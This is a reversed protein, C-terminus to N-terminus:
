ETALIQEIRGADIKRRRGWDCETAIYTMAEGAKSFAVKDSVPYWKSIQALQKLTALGQKQRKKASALLRQAQRFDLRRIEDQPLGKRALSEIQWDAIPNSGFRIEISDSRDMGLTAFPDFSGVRASVTAKAARLSAALARLESRADRLAKHLDGGPQATLKKKATKVEEESYNSGLVDVPSMLSHKGAHGHFDLITALPKASAAIAAQREAAGEPGDIGDAIGPLVRLVRGVMQCYLARSKTPRAIAVVSVTPFDAGETYLMCNFLYQYEGRKFAAVLARRTDKDTEGDLSIAKGPALLNMRECMAHASRVGPTFVMVQRAGALEHTKTVVAETAKLMEDDLQGQNLDGGVSGINSLDVDDVAIEIGSLPTLYGANIGDEIDFVYAVDDCVAKLGAEDARDATATFGAIKAASFHDFVKKSSPNTAHHFEDYLILSFADKPFKDLRAVLTQITACVIREAGCRHVNMEMGVYEGTVEELTARGQTVLEERHALLLVRGPWDMALDSYVTSKGTATAMLVMSSRVTQLSEKLAAKAESQYYRPKRRRPKRSATPQTRIDLEAAADAATERGWLGLQGTM